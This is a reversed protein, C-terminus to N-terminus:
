VSGEPLVHSLDQAKVVFADNPACVPSRTKYFCETIALGVKLRTMTDAGAM